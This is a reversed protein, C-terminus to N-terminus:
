RIHNLWQFLPTTRMFHNARVISYAIQSDEFGALKAMVKQATPLLEGAVYEAWTLRMGEREWLERRERDRRDEAEADLAERLARKAARQRRAREM